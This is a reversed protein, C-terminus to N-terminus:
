GEGTHGIVLSLDGSCDSVSKALTTTSFVLQELFLDIVHKVAKDKGSTACIDALKYISSRSRKIVKGIKTGECHKYSSIHMLEEAVIM